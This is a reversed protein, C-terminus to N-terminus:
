HMTGDPYSKRFPGHISLTNSEFAHNAPVTMKTLTKSNATQWQKQGYDAIPVNLVPKHWASRTVTGTALTAIAGEAFYFQILAYKSLTGNPNAM